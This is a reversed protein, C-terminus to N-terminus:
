EVRHKYNSSVNQVTWDIRKVFEHQRVPCDHKTCIACSFDLCGDTHVFLEISEGFNEKVLKSLEDIELHAEHINLYWPVTLHCDLHLTGGYKIIRLNHLDVWNERRSSQFLAIVKDLLDDDAEDMIGAISSRLIKYGSVIIIIAFVFAVVSDIWTYKLFFILVLGIIIGITAYTDSQMHKGTAILALSNNQTGKKVAYFGVGYNIFATLAVLYIGYDLQSIQHPHKLNNLAEYIILFSSVIMLTGEAAASIFEVKGHGYPHNQDRPQASIYLSYLGVIGSIVNITYELADTLIAVSNTLYWATLKILFLIITISLLRKQINYNESAKTM